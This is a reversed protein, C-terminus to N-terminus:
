EQYFALFEEDLIIAFYGKSLNIYGTFLGDRQLSEKLLLFYQKSCILFAEKALEDPMIGSELITIPKQLKEFVFDNYSAEPSTRLLVLLTDGEVFEKYIGGDIQLDLFTTFVAHHPIREGYIIVQQPLLETEIPIQTFLLSAFTLAISIILIKKM